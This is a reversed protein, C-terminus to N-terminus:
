NRLTSYLSVGLIIVGGVIEKVSPMAGLILFALVIGYVSEMGSIIGATQVKVKKLGTVFLSHAAATCVIGLVALIAVDKPTVQFNIFFLVPLLVFVSIGQEYLCVVSGEYHSTFSRNLLSLAAYTLSSVLGWIIGVTMQNEFSFGPVLILVGILMIIAEIVSRLKLKEHFIWPELFTVFLPFTSFTITGIAVTSVQISHMFSTWHISMIVGALLFLFFDRKEQLKINQKRIKLFILLFLSSFFVRAFTVVIAPVTVSKGIVGALGFLLVAIHIKLLNRQHENM